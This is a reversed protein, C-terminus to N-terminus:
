AKKLKGITLAAVILILAVIDNWHMEDGLLVIGLFVGFLTVLYGVLSTFTPGAQQVLHFFIVYALGGCLVGLAILSLSASAGGQWTWPADFALALVVLPVSGALFVNRMALTPPVGRLRKMLILGLSFCFAGALIALEGIVNALWDGQVNPVVLVLVGIFGVVASLAAPWSWSEEKVFIPALVLTFIPVTALPHRRHFEGRATPGLTCPLM